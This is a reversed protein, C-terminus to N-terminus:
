FSVNLSFSVARCFPYDLGREQKITSAYFIDSMNAGLKASSIGLSRTWAKPFRYFLAVNTLTLYNNDQVFRSSVYSTSHDAINKYFTLDGPKKWREEYARVDGNNYINLGEVREALTSNYAKAGYSYRFSTSLTWQKYVFNTGFNGTITPETDGVIVKDNSNWVETVTGRKTLFLEKGNAPNIGLSPVVKLVSMSQGEEYETVPRTDQNIGNGFQNSENVTKLSNNIKKIKNSNHAANFSIAWDFDKKRIIVANLSVDYGSNEIEGFNETYDSFGLSPAVTVPLLLGDTNNVYYNVSFNLRRHALGFDVGVNFQRNQQWTLNTNGYQMFTAGLTEYYLSNQNFQLTTRAVDQSFNAAGTVGYSARIRFDALGPILGKMFKENNINWGIGTSWNNGFRNESGYASSGDLRMSFDVFYRNAFSYNLNGLFGVLRSKTRSSSPTSNRDFANANGIENFRDDIFGMVKYSESYSNNETLNVGAGVYINHEGMLFNNAITSSIDWGSDESRGSSATGKDSAPSSSNDYQADNPSTYSASTGTTRNYSIAARWRLSHTIRYDFNFQEMISQSENNNRHPLSANYVYNYHNQGSHQTYKKIFNGEEDYIPSYPNAATFNSFSGYPSNDGKSSSYTFNNRIQIKDKIRYGLDFSFSTSTRDSGKMVGQTNGYSGSVGYTIVNDGGEAYISHNQTLGTRLPQAMWYTDIGRAVNSYLEQYKKDLEYQQKPDSNTYVGSMREFELKQAANMLHYSTLDAWTLGTRNSYSVTFHGAKPRRTEIILVGNAARSGYYVTASADKLISISEIRELDMDYLYQANVEYGDVIITPMSTGQFSSEGRVVFDPLQNPNSGASNNEKIKFSPDISQLVTFINATGFEAIDDHTVKTVSGTFTEKQKDFFGTVVVDQIQANPALSIAKMGLASKLPIEKTEYGIYSFAVTGSTAKTVLTYEGETNTITGENTHKIRINAGILAEGHEDTVKGHLITGNNVMLSMGKETQKSQKTIILYGKRGREVKLGRGKIISEVISIATQNKASLTVRFNLDKYNFQVKCGALSEVKSLATSAKENKFNVTIKKDQAMAACFICLLILTLMGRAHQTICGWMSKKRLLKQLM